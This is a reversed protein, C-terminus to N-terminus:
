LPALESGQGSAQAPWRSAGVTCTHTGIAPQVLCCESGLDVEAQRVRDRQTEESFNLDRVWPEGLVAWM